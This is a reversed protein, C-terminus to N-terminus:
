ATARTEEDQDLTFIGGCPLKDAPLSGLDLRREVSPVDQLEPVEFKALNPKRRVHAKTCDSEHLPQKATLSFLSFYILKAGLLILSAHRQMPNDLEFRVVLFFMVLLLPASVVASFFIGHPDFYPQKAFSKWHQALLTNLREAMFVILAALVCDQIELDQSFSKLASDAAFM